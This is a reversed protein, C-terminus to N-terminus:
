QYTHEGHRHKYKVEIRRRKLGLGETYLGELSLSVGRSVTLNGKFDRGINEKIYANM